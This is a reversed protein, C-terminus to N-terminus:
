YGRVYRVQLSGTVFRISGTVFRYRVPLSGTVFRYRVPLSGTVFRYRVQLSDTVFRYRVQLSGTVPPFRHNTLMNVWMNGTVPKPDNQVRSEPKAWVKTGSTVLWSGSTVWWFALVCVCVCVCVCMGVCVLLFGEKCRYRGRLYV